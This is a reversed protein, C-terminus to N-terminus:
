WDRITLASLQLWLGEADEGAEDVCIDAVFHGSLAWEADGLGTTFATQREQRDPGAIRLGIAHRRGEFLASAWPRSTAREITAPAGARALMQALLRPLPDPSGGGIAQSRILNPQRFYHDVRTM